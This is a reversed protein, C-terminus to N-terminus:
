SVRIYKKTIIVEQGNEIATFYLIAGEFDKFDSNLALNAIKDEFSLVQVLVKFNRIIKRAESEPKKKTLVYHTNALSLFSLSLRIQKKDALSFLEAAEMYFPKRQALLDLVINTDILVQKM